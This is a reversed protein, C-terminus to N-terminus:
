LVSSLVYLCMLTAWDKTKQTNNNTRKDEKTQDNYQRDKSKLNRTVGKTDEFKKAM